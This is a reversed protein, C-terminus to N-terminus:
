NEFSNFITLKDKFPVPIIDPTKSIIKGKKNKMLNTSKLKKLDNKHLNITNKIRNLDIKKKKPNLIIISSKDKPNSSIKISEKKNKGFKHQILRTRELKTETKPDPTFSVNGRLINKRDSTSYSSTHIKCVTIKNKIIGIREKFKLTFPNDEGLKSLSFNLGKKYYLLSSEYESMNEYEIAVNQYSMILSFMYAENNSPSSELLDLATTAHFLAKAHEVMTSYITCLNLHTGSLNLVDKENKSEEIISKQFYKIATTFAGKRKYYCGLNNYTLGWLKSPNIIKKQNLIYQAQALLNYAIKSQDQKLAIMAQKNYSCVYDDYNIM